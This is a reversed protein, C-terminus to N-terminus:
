SRRSMRADSDRWPDIIEDPPSPFVVVEIPGVAQDHPAVPALSQACTSSNYTVPM